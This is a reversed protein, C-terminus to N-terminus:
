KQGCFPFSPVFHSADGYFRKVFIERRRAGPLDDPIGSWVLERATDSMQCGIELRDAGSKGMMKRFLLQNLDASTDAISFGTDAYRDPEIKSRKSTM